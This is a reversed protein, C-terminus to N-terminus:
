TAYPGRCWSITRALALVRLHQLAVTTVIVSSGALRLDPELGHGFGGDDNQFFRSNASCLRPRGMKLTIASYRRNWRGARSWSLRVRQSSCADLLTEDYGGPVHLAFQRIQAPATVFLAIQAVNKPCVGMRQGCLRPHFSRSLDLLGAYM